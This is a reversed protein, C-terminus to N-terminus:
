KKNRCWSSCKRKRINLMLNISQEDNPIINEELSAKKENEM